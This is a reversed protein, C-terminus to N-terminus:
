LCFLTIVPNTAECTVSTLCQASCTTVTDSKQSDDVDDLHFGHIGQTIIKLHQWPDGVRRAALTRTQRVLNEPETTACLM